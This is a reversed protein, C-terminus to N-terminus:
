AADSGGAFFKLTEGSQMTLLVEVGYEKNNLTLGTVNPVLEQRVGSLDEMYLALVPRTTQGIYYATWEFKQVLAGQALAVPIPVTLTLISQDGSTSISAVRDVVGHRRDGILVIDGKGVEFNKSVTIRTTGVPIAESM